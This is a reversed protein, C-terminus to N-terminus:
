NMLRDLKKYKETEKRIITDVDTAKDIKDKVTSDLSKTKNKVENLQNDIENNLENCSTFIFFTFLFPLTTKLIM